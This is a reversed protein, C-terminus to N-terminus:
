IREASRCWTDTMEDFRDIAELEDFRQMAEAASALNALLQSLRNQNELNDGDPHEELQAKTEEIRALLTDIAESTVSANTGTVLLEPTELPGGYVVFDSQPPKAKSHLIGSQYPFAPRLGSLLTRKRDRRSTEPTIRPRFSGLTPAVSAPASERYSTPSLYPASAATMGPSPLHLAHLPIGKSSQDDMPTRVSMDTYCPQRAKAVTILDGIPQEIGRNFDIPIQQVGNNDESGRICENTEFRGEDRIPHDDTGEAAIERNEDNSEALKRTWEVKSQSDGESTPTDHTTKSHETPLEDARRGEVEKANRRGLSCGQIAPPDGRLTESRHRNKPSLIHSISNAASRKTDSQTRGAKNRISSPSAITSSALDGGLSLDMSSAPEVVKTEASTSTVLVEPDKRHRRQHSGQIRKSMECSDSFSRVTPSKITSPPEKCANPSPKKQNFSSRPSPDLKRHTQLKGKGPASKSEVNGIRSRSPCLSTELSTRDEEVVAPLRTKAANGTKKVYNPGSNATISLSNVEDGTSQQNKCPVQSEVSHAGKANKKASEVAARPIEAAERSTHTSLVCSIKRNEKTSLTNLGVTSCDRSSMVEIKDSANLQAYPVTKDVTTAVSTAKTSDDYNGFQGVDGCLICIEREGDGDTMLPMVCNPCSLDLLIWGQLMKKGIEKSVANRKREFDKHIEEVCKRPTPSLIATTHEEVSFTGAFDTPFSLVSPTTEQLLIIQSCGDESEDDGNIMQAYAGDRGSGCGGCVVCEKEESNTILPSSQCEQGRCLEPLTTWGSLLRRTRVAKSECRLTEWRERCVESASPKINREHYDETDARSIKEAEAVVSVEGAAITKAFIKRQVAVVKEIAAKARGMAEEAERQKKNADKELESLLNSEELAQKEDALRQREFEAADRAKEAKEIEAQLKLEENYKNSISASRSTRTRNQELQQAELQQLRETEKLVLTQERAIEETLEVARNKKETHAKTAEDLVRLSERKAEEAKGVERLLHAAEKEIEMKQLSLPPIVSFHDSDLFKLPGLTAEVCDAPQLDRTVVSRQMSVDPVEVTKVNLEMLKPTHIDSMTNAQVLTSVATPNTSISQAGTTKAQQLTSEEDKEINDAAKSNQGQREEQPADVSDMAAKSAEDKEQKPCLAPTEVSSPSQSSPSVKSSKNNATTVEVSTTSAAVVLAMSVARSKVQDLKSHKKARLKRQIDISKELELKKQALRQKEEEQVVRRRALEVQTEDELRKKAMNEDLVPCVTCFGSSDSQGENMIPMSCRQCQEERLELGEMMKDALIKTAIQRRRLLCTQFSLVRHSTEGVSVLLNICM